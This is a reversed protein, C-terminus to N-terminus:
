MATSQQSYMVTTCSLQSSWLNWLCVVISVSAINGILMCDMYDMNNIEKNPKGKVIVIWVSSPFLLATESYLLKMLRQSVEHDLDCSIKVNWIIYPMWHFMRDVCCPIKQSVTALLVTHTVVIIMSAIGTAIRSAKQHKLMQPRICYTQAWWSKRDCQKMLFLCFYSGLVM